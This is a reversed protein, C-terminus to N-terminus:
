AAVDFPLSSILSGDARILNATCNASGSTWLGTPGLPFVQSGSSDAAFGATQALVQKGSQYCRLYVFPKTESTVVTFTVYDAFRPAAGPSTLNVVSLPSSSTTNNRGTPKGKGVALAPVVSAVLAVAVLGTILKGRMMKKEM